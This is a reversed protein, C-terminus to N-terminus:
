TWYPQSRWPRKLLLVVAGAVILGVLLGAALDNLPRPQLPRDLATAPTMVKVQLPRTDTSDGALTPATQAYYVSALRAIALARAPDPDAATIALVTSKGEIDASVENRLTSLPVGTSASVPALVADSTAVILQNETARDVATDSLEYRPSLVFEAQAGYVKPQMKLGYFLASGTTLLVILVGILVLVATRPGRPTGSRGTVDVAGGRHGSTLARPGDLVRRALAFVGETGTGNGHHRDAPVDPARGMGVVYTPGIESRLGELERLTEAALRHIEESARREIERFALSHPVRGEPETDDVGTAGDAGADDADRAEADAPGADRTAGNGHTGEHTDDDTTEDPSTSAGGPVATLNPRHTDGRVQDSEPQPENAGALPQAGEM